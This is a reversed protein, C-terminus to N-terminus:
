LRRLKKLPPEPLPSPDVKFPGSLEEEPGSISLLNHSAAQGSVVRRCGNETSSPYPTRGSEDATDPRADKQQLLVGMINEHGNEAALALPTRGDDDTTDPNVDTRELLTRVIEGHGRAAAWSLPTRGYGDPTDPNVDKRELLMRVIKERRSGAAWSLPTRGSKDAIDPNINNRELLMKVIEEGGNGAAWSFATRGSKDSIDLNINNRELLMRVIKQRGNKAALLLPTRGDEDITDPNVDSRELLMEVIGDHGKEAAWSLQTRGWRDVIHPDVGEQELLVKVIADHGMITALMLATSGSMNTANLDWKNIKLLSVMIELVGLFAGAHLATCKLPHYYDEDEKRIKWLEERLLLECSIHADFRDLLKLALSVVNTSIQRRAHSGWYCSAYQLFPATPSPLYLAPWLKRIRGFNLYTLCVEAITSHPGCFLTPNALIHEQLTFHVLRVQFCSSDVTVLGLGCNLITRISPANDNDLDTSGIEIGLAQCLEDPRLPRESHAIWMIAEMGLRARDEGQARIRELTAAYVDGVNQGNSMQKLKDRRRRITTEGLIAEISLSVLLFRLLIM